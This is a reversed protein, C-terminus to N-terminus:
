GVVKRLHERIAGGCAATDAHGGIDATRGDPETMTAEIAQVVADAAAQEGLHELMMAGSWVQGVPNAVGQGAIDPASGHVPEFLSPFAGTPNINASPAVGITGTCAPGLDSLIDGFLNSGVVVDFQDPQLVFKAALIDIHHKEWAVEPYEAAMLALREDWYPM